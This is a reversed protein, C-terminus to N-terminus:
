MEEERESLRGDIYELLENIKQRKSTEDTIRLSGARRQEYM